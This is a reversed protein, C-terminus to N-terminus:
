AARNARRYAEPDEVKIREMESDVLKEHVDSARRQRSLDVDPVMPGDTKVGGLAVKLFEFPRRMSDRAATGEFGCHVM